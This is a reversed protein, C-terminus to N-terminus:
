EEFENYKCSEVMPMDGNDETIIDTKRRNCLTVDFFVYICIACIVSLVRASGVVGFIRLSLDENHYVWCNGREGCQEQWFECSADFLAGIVIPGPISGLIRFFVSQIGLALSRHEDAICRYLVINYISTKM